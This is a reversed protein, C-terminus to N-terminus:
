LLLRRNDGVEIDSPTSRVDGRPHATNSSDCKCNLLRRRDDNTNPTNRGNM